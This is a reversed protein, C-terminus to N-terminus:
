VPWQWCSLRWEHGEVVVAAKYDPGPDLARLSWRLVDQAEGRTSLLAAPAGPALSVDFQDLPLSLGEGRAKIYAEKRVWGNFFAERRMSIPVAWFSAVEHPSFFRDVIQEVEVNTHMYELDIGIERERSVAFLAVGRSRSLNFCLGGQSSRMALAPKGYESYRFCLQHPECDQYRALITRLLGRGVVFHWRDKEFHFREARSLEDISLSQQLRHLYEAPVDLAARWVHVDDRSLVLDAPSTKWAEAYMTM